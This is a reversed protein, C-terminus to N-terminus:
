RSKEMLEDRKCELKHIMAALLEKEDYFEACWRRCELQDLVHQMQIAERLGPEIEIGWCQCKELLELMDDQMPEEKKTRDM